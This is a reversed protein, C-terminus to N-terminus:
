VYITQSANFSRGIMGASAERRIISSRMDNVYLENLRLPTLPIRTGVFIMLIHLYYEKGQM